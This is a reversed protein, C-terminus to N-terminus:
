RFVHWITRIKIRAYFEPRKVVKRGYLGVKKMKKRMREKVKKKSKEKKWFIDEIKKMEKSKKKSKKIKLSCLEDREESESM